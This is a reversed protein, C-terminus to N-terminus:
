VSIVPCPSVRILAFADAGGGLLGHESSRGVILAGAGIKRCVEAAYPAAEMGEAHVTAQCGVATILAHLRERAAQRVLQQTEDPFWEGASWDISPPVHIVHLAASWSKAFDVAWRLVKESHERDRLGVACAVARYPASLFAPRDALHAGTMVPSEVDHLVKAVISGLLLRRFRGHGRTSMVVLDAEREAVLQEIRHAPDGSQVLAEVDLTAAARAVLAALEREVQQVNAAALEPALGKGLLQYEHPAPPIIHACILRASFHAALAAAHELAHESRESFDVPALITRINLM